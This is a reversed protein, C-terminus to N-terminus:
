KKWKWISADRVAVILQESLRVLDADLVRAYADNLFNLFEIQFKLHGLVEIVRDMFVPYVDNIFKQSTAYINLSLEGAELVDNIRQTREDQTLETHAFRLAKDLQLSEAALTNSAKMAELLHSEMIFASEFIEILGDMSKLMRMTAVVKRRDDGVIASVQNEAIVRHEIANMEVRINNIVVETLYNGFPIM